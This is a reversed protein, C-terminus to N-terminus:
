SMEGPVHYAVKRRGYRLPPRTSSPALKSFQQLPFGNGLTRIGEEGCHMSGLRASFVGEPTESGARSSRPSQGLSSRAVPGRANLHLPPRTASPTRKSLTHVALYRSNSDRGRRLYDANLSKGVRRYNPIACAVRSSEDRRSRYMRISAPSSDGRGFKPSGTWTSPWRSLAVRSM